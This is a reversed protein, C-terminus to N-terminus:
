WPNAEDPDRRGQLRLLWCYLAPMEPKVISTRKSARHLNRDCFRFAVPFRSSPSALLDVSQRPRAKDFELSQGLDHLHRMAKMKQQGMKEPVCPALTWAM